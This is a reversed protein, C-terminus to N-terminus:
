RTGPTFSVGRFVEGDSATALTRFREHDGPTLSGVRDTIRVLQNPDAGQDGSGSVTSTTAYITVTGNRNVQGTLQRLGDPAPAWPAETGGPLTNDGTPYGRVRYPQGLNLGAQLTYALHWAKAAPDYVWKQLGATPNDTPDAAAYSGSSTPATGNGEDALYLTHPNAFFMGFPYDTIPNTSNLVQPFGALLCMNFPQLRGDAGVTAGNLPGTPLSAGPQPVGIGNPCAKGTTDVFYVSNSGQGGSGKDFYLVNNEIAVARYNNEKAVDGGETLGLETVGFSGVPTPEGPKQAIEPQTSPTTIQAGASTIYADGGSDNANGAMFLKNDGPDLIAARGNDGSFANTLTFHFKGDVGLEAIVRYHPSAAPNTGPANVGPTNSNSVDLVDVPSDYGMFSVTRGNPSLNLALESKSSYSTVMQDQTGNYGPMTSNPVEISGVVKGDPKVEDLVISSTVGFSGDVSANNFVEPFGGDAVAPACPNSASGSVCGPPLLTRGPVLGNVYQFDTTAVLLDGPVLITGSEPSKTSSSPQASAASTLSPLVLAATAPFLMARRFWRQAFM